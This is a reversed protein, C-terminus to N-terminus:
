LNDLGCAVTAGASTCLIVLKAIEQRWIERCAVPRTGPENNLAYLLNALLARVAEWFLSKNAMWM